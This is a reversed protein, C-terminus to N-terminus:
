SDHDLANSEHDARNFSNQQLNSQDISESSDQQATHPLYAPPVGNAAYQDMLSQLHPAISNSSIPEHLPELVQSGSASAAALPEVPRRNGTANKHKDLPYLECLITDTQPAVLAVTTLDWRAFRVTPRLLTRYRSPLEFRVGGVTITGDSRRQTRVVETRFMHRLTTSDPSPRGVSSGSLAVKVPTDALERHVTHHYDLEVWAQTAQNLLPLTLATEAELMPMLRGEVQAWFVEQKANQAPTYPLTTHHIIGLRHLGETPEAALMPSGNDTLLMRPLGRKLIAQSLGHVFTEATQQLYWQLHCCLRSRDDIFGLLYCPAWQGSPLLVHRSGVHFDAHWLAHVHELEFSRMERAEFTDSNGQKGKARRQKFLGKEKMFRSVTQYSPIKGLEAHQKALAVLNDYHLKYSWRPYQQYQAYLAQELATPLSPHTGAHSPLKRALASVPDDPHNKAMYYWRELTSVGFQVPEGTTPHCYTTEALKALASQLEGPNPPAALLPGVISFRLRAWRTRVSPKTSTIACRRQQRHLAQRPPLSKM